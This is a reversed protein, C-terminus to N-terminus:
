DIYHDRYAEEIEKETELELASLVVGKDQLELRVVRMLAYARKEDEICAKADQCSMISQAHALEHAFEHPEPYASFIICGGPISDDNDKIDESILVLTEAKEAADWLYRFTPSLSLEYNYADRFDDLPIPGDKFIVDMDLHNNPIYM